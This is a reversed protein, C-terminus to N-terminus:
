FAILLTMLWLNLRWIPIDLAFLAITVHNNLLCCTEFSNAECRNQPM